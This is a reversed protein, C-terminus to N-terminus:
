SSRMYQENIVPMCEAKIEGVKNENVSVKTNMTSIDCDKQSATSNHGEKDILQAGFYM